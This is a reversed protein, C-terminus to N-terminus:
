KAETISVPSNARGVSVIFKKSTNKEVIKYVYVPPQGEVNDIVVPAGQVQGWPELTDIPSAPEGQAKSSNNFVYGISIGASLIITVIITTQFIGSIKKRM